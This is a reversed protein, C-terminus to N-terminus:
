MENWSHTLTDDFVKVYHARFAVSTVLKPVLRFGIHSKRDTMLLLKGGIKCQKWTIALVPSIKGLSLPHRM